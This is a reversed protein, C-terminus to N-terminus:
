LLLEIETEDLFYTFIKCLSEYENEDIIYIIKHLNDLYNISLNSQRNIKKINNKTRM